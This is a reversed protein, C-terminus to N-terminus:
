LWIVDVIPQGNDADPRYSNFSKIELPSKPQQQYLITAATSVVQYSIQFYLTLIPFITLWYWESQM